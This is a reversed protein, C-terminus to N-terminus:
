WIYPPSIKNNSQTNHRYICGPLYTFVLHDLQDLLSLIYTGDNENNWKTKLICSSALYPQPNQTSSCMNYLWSKGMVPGGM